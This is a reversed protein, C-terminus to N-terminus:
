NPIKMEQFLDIDSILKTVADAENEFRVLAENRLVDNHAECCLMNKMDAFNFDNQNFCGQKLPIFHNFVFFDAMKVSKEEIKTVGVPISGM